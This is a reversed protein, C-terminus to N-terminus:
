SIRLISRSVGDTLDKPPSDPKNTLWLQLLKLIHEQLRGHLALGITGKRGNIFLEYLGKM